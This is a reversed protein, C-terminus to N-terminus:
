FTIWKFRRNIWWLVLAILIVIIIWFWSMFTLGSSKVHKDYSSNETKSQAYKRVRVDAKSEAGIENATSHNASASKKTTAHRARGKGSIKTKSMLNGDPGYKEISLTDGQDGDYEYIEEVTEEQATSDIKSVSVSKTASTGASDITSSTETQQAKKTIDKKRTSGCSSLTCIFVIFGIVILTTVAYGIRDVKKIFPKSM